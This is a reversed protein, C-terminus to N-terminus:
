ATEAALAKEVREVLDRPSFPKAVYDTVGAEYAQELDQARTRPTLIIIPVQETRISARLQRCVDLGSMQPLRMDLIILDPPERNAERLAAVGDQAEIVMFGASTLNYAVLHRLDADAEVLLVTSTTAREVTEFLEM